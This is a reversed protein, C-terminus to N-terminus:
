LHVLYLLHQELAAMALYMGLPELPLLVAVVARETVQPVELVV